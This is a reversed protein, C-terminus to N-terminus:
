THKLMLHVSQYLAAIHEPTNEDHSELRASRRVDKKIYTTAGDAGVGIVIRHGPPIQSTPRKRSTEM